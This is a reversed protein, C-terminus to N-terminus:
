PPRAAVHDREAHEARPPLGVHRNDVGPRDGCGGGARALRPRPRLASPNTAPPVCSQHGPGRLAGGAALPLWDGLTRSALSTSQCGRRSVAGVGWNEFKKKVRIHEKIGQNAAGLGEGERWGMATMLKYGASEKQVGQYRQVPSGLPQPQQTAAM